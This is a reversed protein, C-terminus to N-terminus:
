KKGRITNYLIFIYIIYILSIFVNTLQLYINISLKFIYALGFVTLSSILLIIQMLLDINQKNSIITSVNVSSAIFRLMVMPTLISVFVGSEYWAEGFIIKFVPPAAFYMIIGMPIAIITSFLITKKFSVICNGNDIYEKSAREFYVKSINSAVVSLPLGLIRYSISYLGLVADGFLFQIFYNMSSYSLGNLFTAPTSWIVQRKHKKAVYKLKDKDVRKLLDKYNKLGSMQSKIGFLLGIIQSFMLGIFGTKLVGFIIMFANQMGTRVIYLKTILTYESMRNNFSILINIIGTVFLLIFIILSIIILNYNTASFLRLYIAYGITIIASFITCIITSLQLLGLSNELETESVISVEYRLSIVPSFITVATTILTFIGIEEPTFLRTTIPSCIITVIQAIISGSALTFVNKFFTNNKM